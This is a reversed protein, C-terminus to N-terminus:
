RVWCSSVSSVSEELEEDDELSSSGGGGGLSNVFHVHLKDRCLSAHQTFIGASLM